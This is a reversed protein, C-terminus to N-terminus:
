LLHSEIIYYLTFYEGFEKDLSMSAATYATYEKRGKREKRKNHEEM